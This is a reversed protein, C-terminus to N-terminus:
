PKLRALRAELRAVDDRLTEVARSFEEVEEARALLPQEETWYEALNEGTRLLADRQWVLFDRGANAIRHAAINGVVRSLDDEVDWKLNRFLFQVTSALDANGSVEIHQLLADSGSLLHPLAGSKITLTLDTADDAGAPAVLGDSAVTLRLEPLPPARFLVVKGAFPKLRDRAWDEGQLLHNLAHVASQAHLPPSKSSAPEM